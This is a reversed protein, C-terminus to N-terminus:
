ECGGMNPQKCENAGLQKGVAREVSQPVLDNVAATPLNAQHAEAPLAKFTRIQDSRKEPVLNVPLDTRGTEVKHQVRDDILTEVDNPDRQRDLRDKKSAIPV